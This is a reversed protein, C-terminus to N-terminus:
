GVLWQRRRRCDVRVHKWHRGCEQIHAIQIRHVAKNRSRLAVSRSFHIGLSKGQRRRRRNWRRVHGKWQTPRRICRFRKRRPISEILRGPGKEEGPSINFWLHGQQDRYAGHGNAALGHLGEVRFFKTEGTKADVRGLSAWPNPVNVSFWINGDLDSQADHVGHQGFFSSPTGLSWDSGNNTAYQKPADNAAFLPVDYETFVVRAADGSPRPRLKFKM